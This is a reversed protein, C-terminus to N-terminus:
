GLIPEQVNLLSALYASEGYFVDYPGVAAKKLNSDGELEKRLQPNQRELVVFRPGEAKVRKWILDSAAHHPLPTMMVRHQGLANLPYALGIDAIGFHLGEKELFRVVERLESSRRFAERGSFLNGLLLVGLLLSLGGKKWFGSKLRELQWAVAFVYAIVLQLFFRMGEDRATFNRSCYLLALFLPPLIVFTYCVKLNPTLLRRSRFFYFVLSTFSIAFIFFPILSLVRILRDLWPSISGFSFTSLFYKMRAFFLYLVQPLDRLSAFGSGGRTEISMFTGTQFGYIWVPLLGILFGLFVGLPLKRKWSAPILWIVCVAIPALWIMFLPNCWFAIGSVVGLALSLWGSKGSPNDAMKLLLLLCLIALLPIEAWGIVTTFFLAPFPLISLLVFLYTTLERNFLRRAIWLYTAMFSLYFLSYYIRGVLFSFGFLRFFPALFYSELAGMLAQDYFYIPFRRFHAIDDAMYLQVVEDGGPPIVLIALLRLILFAALAILIRGRFFPGAESTSERKLV